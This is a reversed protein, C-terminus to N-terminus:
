TALYISALLVKKMQIQPLPLSASGRVKWSYFWGYNNLHVSELTAPSSSNGNTLVARLLHISDTHRFM